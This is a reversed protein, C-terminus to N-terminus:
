LYRECFFEKRFEDPEMDTRIIKKPTSDLMDTALDVMTVRKKEYSYTYKVSDKVVAVSIGDYPQTLVHCREYRAAEDVTEAPAELNPKSWQPVLSNSFPEGTLLELVTPIIDTQSPIEEKTGSVFEDRRNKPPLYVFSTLFNDTTAGVQNYTSRNVGVPWSHDGVIILHTNDPAFREFEEMFVRLCHDQVVASNIYKEIFNRPKEFMKLSQYEKKQDFGVHNSSVEFYTFLKSPQPHEEELYRMARKYFTCDDYGWNYKVDGKGMISAPEPVDDMGIERMFNGTNAFSLRDSRLFVTDYGWKKLMRPLCNRHMEGPRFSFAKGINAVIGCLISEQGRNTQMSNGWFLPHFVGTEGIARMVPFYTDDYPVGQVSALGDMVLGNLSELQLIFVNEGNPVAQAFPYAAGHVSEVGKEEGSYMFYEHGFPIGNAMWLLLFAIGAARTVGLHVIEVRSSLRFLSHFSCYLLVACAALALVMPIGVAETFAEAANPFSHTAFRPDVRGSTFFVYGIMAYLATFYASFAVIASTRVWTSKMSVSAHMLFFLGSFTVIPAYWVYGERDAAMLAPIVITMAYLAVVHAIHKKQPMPGNYCLFPWKGM